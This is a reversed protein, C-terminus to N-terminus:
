EGRSARLVSSFWRQVAPRMLSGRHGADPVTEFEVAIGHEEFNRRLSELREVRTHGVADAGDLWNPDGVNNIEWTETDLAGVVMHVPVQRMAGVDVPLGSLQELDRTGLWWDKTDDILTVRGPAGISVGQLRDPHLYFFRHTFQGGGSFGHMLFRRTDVNFREGVEDVIRLLLEDYRLDDAMLFKYSHVEGPGAIGGPFLPALVLASHEEAWDSFGDRYQPGSRATGHMLVVLPLPRDSNEHGAPVHLCYSLRPDAQSAFIPTRGKFYSAAALSTNPASTM